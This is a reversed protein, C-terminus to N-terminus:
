ALALAEAEIALPADAERRQAAEAQGPAEAWAEAGVAPPAALRWPALAPAVGLASTAAPCEWYGM